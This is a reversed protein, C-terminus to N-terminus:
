RDIGPQLLNKNTSHHGQCSTFSSILYPRISHFSRDFQGEPLALLLPSAPPCQLCSSTSSHMGGGALRTHRLAARHILILHELNDVLEYFDSVTDTSM